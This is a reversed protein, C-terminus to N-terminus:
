MHGVPPERSDTYDCSVPLGTGEKKERAPQHICTNVQTQKNRKSSPAEHDSSRITRGELPQALQRKKWPKQYTQGVLRHRKQEHQTRRSTATVPDQRHKKQGNSGM